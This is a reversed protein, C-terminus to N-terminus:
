VDYDGVSREPMKIPSHCKPCTVYRYHECEDYDRYERVDSPVYAILFHCTDCEREVEGVPTASVVRAM